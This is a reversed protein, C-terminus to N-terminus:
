DTRRLPIEMVGLLFASGAMQIAIVVACLASVLIRPVLSSNLPGFDVLFWKWTAWAVGAVGAVFLVSAIQTLRDTSIWEILFEARSTRPLFGARAAFARAMAGFTLLQIGVTVLLCAAIFTNNELHINSSIRVPGAVLMGALCLGALSLTMGPILFLWRPSYMLLFKLHRWGDRWTKLHPARSRGDVSLRTPVEAINLQALASRVVMESAFEMGTTQLALAQIATRRFGRLGCHFDRARINFFLRGIFSLVPNGLYRHLFPMAGPAIGGKFRNGMVLDAGVRLRELFLILASFDYSLDADGMIVYRGRAAEIGGRLARAMDAIRFMSSALVWSKRLPKPVTQAATTPSSCKAM